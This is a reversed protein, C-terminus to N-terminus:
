NSSTERCMPITLSYGSTRERLWGMKIELQPYDIRDAKGFLAAAGNLLTGNKRLKFHDLLAAVNEVDVSEDLRGARVAKRATDRIVDLDLDDLSLEPNPQDEM